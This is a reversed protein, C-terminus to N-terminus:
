QIIVGNTAKRDLSCYILILERILSRSTLIEEVGDTGSILQLAKNLLLENPNGFELFSDLNTDLSEDIKYHPTFGNVYDSKKESNYIKCVSPHLEWTLEDNKYSTSGVN